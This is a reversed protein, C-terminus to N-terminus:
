SFPATHEIMTPFVFTIQENVGPCWLTFEPTFKGVSKCTPFRFEFSTNLWQTQRIQLLCVIKTLALRISICILTNRASSCTLFRVLRTACAFWSTNKDHYIEFSYKTKWSRHCRSQESRNNMNRGTSFPMSVLFEKLLWNIFSCKYICIGM